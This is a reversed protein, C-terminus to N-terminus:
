LERGLGRERAHRERERQRERDRQQDLRAGLEREVRELEPRVANRASPENAAGRNIEFDLIDGRDHATRSDYTWGNRGKTARLVEDGKTLHARTHDDNRWEIAYGHQAEAYEPLNLERMAALEQREDRPQPTPAPPERAAEEARVREPTRVPEPNLTAYLDPHEKGRAEWVQRAEAGQRKYQELRERHDSLDPADTARALHEIRGYAQTMHDAHEIERRLMLAERRAPEAEAAIRQDLNYRDRQWAAAEALSAEALSAVPKGPDYTARLAETYRLQAPMPIGVADSPYRYRAPALREPEPAQEQEPPRPPISPPGAGPPESEPTREPAREASETTRVDTTLTAQTQVYAEVLQPYQGLPFAVDIARLQTSETERGTAAEQSLRQVRAAEAERAFQVRIEEDLVAAERRDEAEAGLLDRTREADAGAQRLAREPDAADIEIRAREEVERQRRNTTRVAEDYAAVQEHAATLNAAGERRALDFIDGSRRNDADRWTWRDDRAVRAELREEQQGARTRVLLFRGEDGSPHEEVAFGHVSSAYATLDIRRLAEIEASTLSQAPSALPAGGGGQGAGGEGRGRRSREGREKQLEVIEASTAWELSAGDRFRRSMQEALIVESGALDTSVYLEVRETHRTLGVYATRANWAYRHDYLAYVETNTKGQGRYVTGAYGLGFETFSRTDFSVRTGFDTEVTVTQGRIAAVTGLAGNIIGRARDNGHFQIREGVGIALKGKVTDAELENNVDGRELRIDHIARNIRNVQANTSAYVFRNVDPRERSDQDWDSLLRDRSENLDHSWHVHGHEAYARLGDAMRGQAFDETAERQWEAEQRRVKSIVVSGHREKLETFLGGRQVSAQQRDDGALIVKAGHRAAQKMLRAYIRSDLMAAEDVIVLTDRGWKQGPKGGREQWWVQYHVSTAEKFGSRRLDAAVANTPAVGIVYWGAREHAERIANLSYTKGTGALGEIIVLGDTGTGKLFAAYQEEDLTRGAEAARVYRAEPPRRSRAVQAALDLADREEARVEQTTYRGVFAGTERGYLPLIEPLALVAKRIDARETPDTIYKRTLREIDLETFTARNETLKALVKVPDRAAALNAEHAEDLRSKSEGPVTRLRVPGEHRQATFGTADVRLELGQREFYANQYDRWLEGWREAETVIKANGKLTRVEPDLDRAKHKSFQSGEIRRSTILVHAHYNLNVDGQGFAEDVGVKDADHPDHIDLQAAVGESIFHEQVFERCMTTWDDISLGPDSPLALLLHKGEQSDRRREMAQAANWLVVPDLFKADAGEPLLIEHHLTPGRHAFFFREGTRECAVDSRANYASSRCANDGRSRQIYEVRAFEIAM